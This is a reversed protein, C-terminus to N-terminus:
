APTLYQHEGINAWAMVEPVSAIEVEGISGATELKERVNRSPNFWMCPIGHDRTWCRPFVLMGLGGGEVEDVGTMELVIARAAQQSAVADRLQYAGSNGVVSSSYRIVAVDVVNKITRDFM